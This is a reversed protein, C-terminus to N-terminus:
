PAHISIFVYFVNREFRSLFFAKATLIRASPIDPFSASLNVDAAFHKLCFGADSSLDHSVRCVPELMVDSSASLTTKGTNSSAAAPVPGFGSLFAVFITTLFLGTLKKANKRRAVM